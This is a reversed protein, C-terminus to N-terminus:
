FLGPLNQATIPFHPPKFNLTVTKKPFHILCSNIKNEILSQDLPIFNKLRESILSSCIKGGIGSKKEFITVKHGAQSLKWGLYLGILGAGVIAVNQPNERIM